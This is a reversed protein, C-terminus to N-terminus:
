TSDPRDLDSRTIARLAIGGFDAEQEPTLPNSLRGVSEGPPVFVTKYCLGQSLVKVLREDADFLEDGTMGLDRLKNELLAEEIVAPAIPASRWDRLAERGRRVVGRIGRRDGEVM